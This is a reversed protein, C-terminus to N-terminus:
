WLLSHTVDIIYLEEWSILNFSVPLTALNNCSLDLVAAKPLGAQFLASSNSNFIISYM